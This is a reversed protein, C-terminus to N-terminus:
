HLVEPYVECRPAAASPLYRLPDPYGHRPMPEAGSSTHRVAVFTATLAGQHWLHTYNM